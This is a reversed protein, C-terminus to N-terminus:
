ALVSRRVGRLRELNSDAHDDVTRLQQVFAVGDRGCVWCAKNFVYAWRVDCRQCVRLPVSTM